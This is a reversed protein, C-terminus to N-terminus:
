PHCSAQCINENRNQLVWELNGCIPNVVQGETVQEGDGYSVEGKHSHTMVEPISMVIGYAVNKLDLPREWLMRM